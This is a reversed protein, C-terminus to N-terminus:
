LDYLTEDVNPPLVKKRLKKLSDKGGEGLLPDEEELIDGMEQEITDPDEGSEMRQIAEDMAPGLKLGTSSYLKRMLAAMQRPDEEDIRDAEKALEEMAREMSTEDMDPLGPDENSEKRGQSVAFLSIKRDLKERGCKPCRPKKSTNIRRSMFNFIMHCDPCYFEYVPM